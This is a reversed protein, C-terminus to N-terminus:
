QELELVTLIAQSKRMEVMESRIRAQLEDYFWVDSLLQLDELNAIEAAAQHKDQRGRYEQLHDPLTTPLTNAIASFTNINKQYEAVEARRLELPTLPIQEM